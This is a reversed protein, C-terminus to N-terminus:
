RYGRSAVELALRGLGGGPILVEHNNIVNCGKGTNTCCSSTNPLETLLRNIIGDFYLKKRVNEGKSGWDRSLHIIIQELNDYSPPPTEAKSKYINHDLIINQDNLTSTTSSNVGEVLSPLLAYTINLNSGSMLLRLINENQEWLYPIQTVNKRFSDHIFKLKDTKSDINSMRLITSDLTTMMSSLLKRYGDFAIEVLSKFRRHEDSLYGFITLATFLTMTMYTM